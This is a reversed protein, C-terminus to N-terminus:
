SFVLALTYDYFEKHTHIIWHLIAMCNGRILRAGLPNALSNIKGETHIQIHTWPMNGMLVQGIRIFSRM